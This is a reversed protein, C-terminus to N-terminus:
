ASDLRATIYKRVHDGIRRKYGAQRALRDLERNVLSGYQLAKKDRTVIETPLYDGAVARLAKKRETEDALLEEPLALAATVVADHLLPVVPEVGGARVASVDRPLQEPITAISERVAGRVTDAEVRHDLHVVKEYGGFLEDAGQGLALRDFGDAAVREALLFLPLAISVDMANTRGIARAVRPVARELDAPELSVVTLDRGMAAAASRAAKVDHSDPFGVVYLPVDLLAAVLASDVGGSFAVATRNASGTAVTQDASSAEATGDGASSEGSSDSSVTSAATDIADSLAALSRNPDPEPTLDPLVWRRTADAATPRGDTVSITTGAPVLAPEDLSGPEFAWADDPSRDADAVSAADVYLPVRGLVDRVLLDDIRGAFGITGPFPGGTDLAARVLTPDAGRLTM